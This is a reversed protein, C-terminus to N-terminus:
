SVQRSGLPYEISLSLGEGHKNITVSYKRLIDNVQKKELGQLECAMQAVCDLYRRIHYQDKPSPDRFNILVQEKSKIEKKNVM